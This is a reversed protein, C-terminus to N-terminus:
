WDNIYITLLCSVVWQYHYHTDIYRTYELLHTSKSCNYFSDILPCQHIGVKLLSPFRFSIFALRLTSIIVRYGHGLALHTSNSLFFDM